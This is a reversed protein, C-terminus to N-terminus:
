NTNNYRSLIFKPSTPNTFKKSAMEINIKNLLLSRKTQSFHNIMTQIGSQVVTQSPSTPLGFFPSYHFHHTLQENMKMQFNLMGDVIGNLKSLHHFIREVADKLNNGLPIPQLDTDNNGAILDIGNIQSIQEKQSNKAYPRTILKIGNRGIIRTADAIIVAASQKTSNGVSGRALGLDKDIDSKQSLYVRSADYVPSPDVWSTDEPNINPNNSHRGVVIDISGAGKAGKGGYGSLRNGLRDRGFVIWTNNGGSYVKENKAQIFRVFDEPLPNGAYGEARRRKVKSVQQLREQKDTM